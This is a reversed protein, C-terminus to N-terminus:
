VRAYTSSRAGKAPASAGTLDLFKRRLRQIAPDRSSARAYPPARFALTGDELCPVIQMIEGQTDLLYRRFPTQLIPRLDERGNSHRLFRALYFGDSAFPTRTYVFAVDVRRGGMSTGEAVVIYGPECNPLDELLDGPIVLTNENVGHNSAHGVARDRM